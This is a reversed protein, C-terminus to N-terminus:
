FFMSRGAKSACSDCIKDYSITHSEESLEKGCIDCVETEM